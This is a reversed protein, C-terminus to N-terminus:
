KIMKVSLNVQHYQFTLQHNSIKSKKFFQFLFLFFMCEKFRILKLIKNLYMFPHLHDFHLLIAFQFILYEKLIFQYFNYYAIWM